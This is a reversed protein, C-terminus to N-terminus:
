SDNGAISLGLLVLRPEFEYDVDLARGIVEGAGGTLVIFVQTELILALKRHMREVLGAIGQVVGAEICSSTDVGLLSIAGPVADAQIDTRSLLSIRQLDPGPAIVGGLHQGCADVADVTVATGCDVVLTPGAYRTWAALAALWRDVGLKKPEQYIVTFGSFTRLPSAFVPNMGWLSLCTQSIVRAVEAGAVNSVCISQPVPLSRWTRRLVERGARSPCAEMEGLRDGYDLAWKFRSNGADVLLRCPNVRQVSV